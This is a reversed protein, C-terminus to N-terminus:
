QAARQQRRSRRNKVAMELALSHACRVKRFTYDACDCSFGDLAVGHYKNPVSRSPIYAGVVKGGIKAVIWESRRALLKKAEAQRDVPQYGKRAM